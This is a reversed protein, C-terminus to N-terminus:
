ADSSSVTRQKPRSSTQTPTFTLKTAKLKPKTSHFPINQTTQSRKRRIAQDTKGLGQEPRAM